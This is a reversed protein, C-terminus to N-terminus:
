YERTFEYLAIATAQIVNMSTNTGFMNIHVAYDCLDLLKQNVGFNEHGLIIVIDNSEKWANSQVPIGEDCKELAVISYDLSKYNNLLSEIDSSYGIELNDLTSRSIRKISNDNKLITEKHLIVKTVSFAEAIRFLMGINRKDNVSDAIVVINKPHQKNQIDRHDLQRM